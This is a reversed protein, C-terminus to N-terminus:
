RLENFIKQYAETILNMNYRSRITKLNNEIFTSFKYKDPKINILDTIDSASKFYFANSNLVERNFPNDHACILARAAMAEILSPNTGGVSHGHFYIRAYYRLSNLLELHYVPGSFYIRKDKFKKRLYNGYANSFDGVIYLIDNTESAIFGSIIIDINNEPEARSIILCYDQNKLESPRQLIDTNVEISPYSIYFSNIQYKGDLYKKIEVSDAIVKHSFKIALRESFLLFKKTFWNYKERKWEMGDMNIFIRVNKKHFRLFVASTTYGLHYILDFNRKRSDTICFLDYFFQSFSHGLFAPCYKYILRVKQWQESKYSQYHPCYVSVEHGYASLEVSLLEAFREFGGYHNPIGRTGIIAIKM